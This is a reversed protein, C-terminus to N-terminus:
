SNVKSVTDLELLLLFSNSLESNMDLVSIFFAPFINSLLVSNVESNIVPLFSVDFIIVVLIFVDLSKIKSEVELKFSSLM